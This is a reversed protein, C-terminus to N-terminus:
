QSNQKKLEGLIRRLQRVRSLEVEPPRHQIVWETDAIAEDYRRTQYNLVARYWRDLGSEPDLVVITEVYRLMSEPDNSDRAVGMLNRLMRILIQRPTQAVLDQEDFKRNLRTEVQKVADERTWRKGREFPDILIGPGNKPEFRVIFHGPLGIGVVKLKLRRALEMYLVSVAVPLGERDDIVENLYSNSRSYYNTRSGHFGMEEFLYKEFAKLRESETKLNKTRKRIDSVMRDVQRLYAQVNVERNDLRALLLAAHLLDIPQNKVNVVKALQERTTKEHVAKALQRLRKAQQELLRAREELVIAAGSSHPSVSDVLQKKPPRNVPINLILKEIEAITKAEPRLAPLKKAIAFNKFEAATDRFKALGAQGGKFVSDNSEIVLQDNVFCQIRNKELRVKLTNWEGPRYHRSRVQRLVQWSYVDPGEFRSLRLQGNTPYFGYHKQNGDSHFALGAAGSEDDLKVTVAIEYPLKPVKMQSLILARGGFGQGRGHVLIRGARQRWNAGFLTKWDRKDLAGITLWRSMPVPNPSQLLPKLANIRVAFGLDRTVLSKLTLIGHVRGQLDLMPGGSNGQEIPIALQFMPKDDITRRGSVVGSVISHTLGKPNGIAVIRQGQKITRSDGLPLAPLNKADIKLIALDMRRETAHISKVDFIKGDATKVSIPRAEGIVHLNTAILGDPSIVFGSGLGLTKGNRGSFTVVVVSKKVRAALETITLDRGTGSPAKSQTRLGVPKEARM